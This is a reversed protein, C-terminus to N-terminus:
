DRRQGHQSLFAWAVENVKKSKAYYDHDHGPIEVLEAQFGSAKLRSVTEQVSSLPFFRDKTGVQIHIPVKNKARGISGYDEPLIMGAHIAVAAFVDSALLGVQLGWVAGASHGFLYIRNADFAHTAAVQDLVAQLFKPSDDVSSWARSNAANPAVLLVGEKEALKRWEAIMSDGDRGSGHLLLLLPPSAPLDKPVFLYFSREQGQYGLTSLEGVPGKAAAGTAAWAAIFLFPIALRKM